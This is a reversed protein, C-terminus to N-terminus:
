WNLDSFDLPQVTRIKIWEVKLVLDVLNTKAIENFVTLPISISEVKFFNRILEFKHIKMFSSLFDADIVIELRDEQM